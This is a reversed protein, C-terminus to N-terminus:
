RVTSSEVRQAVSLKELKLGSWDWGLVVLVEDEVEIQLSSIM